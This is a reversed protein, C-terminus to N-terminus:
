RSRAPVVRAGPGHELQGARPQGRPDQAGQEAPVGPASRGRVPGRLPGARGPHRGLHPVLEHLDAAPARLVRRRLHLVQRAIVDLFSLGRRVCLLSKARDMGMSTGLGGNLKIVATVSIAEAAQEDEVEVDALRPMEVPEISSEPIMGSEGHQVLRYYHSFVDIAVPDVGAEAMKQQCLKLGRSTSSDGMVAITPQHPSHAWCSRRCRHAHAQVRAPGPGQVRGPAPPGLQGQAVLQQGGASPQATGSIATRARVPRWAAARRGPPVGPPWRRPRRRPRRALGAGAASRSARTAAPLRTTSGTRRGSKSRSQAAYSPGPTARPAGSRAARAPRARLEPARGIAVASTTSTGASATSSRPM